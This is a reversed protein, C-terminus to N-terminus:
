TNHQFEFVLLEVLNCYYPGRTAIKPSKKKKTSEPQEHTGFMGVEFRSASRFSPLRWFPKSKPGPPTATM